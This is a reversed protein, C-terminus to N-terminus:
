ENKFKSSLIFWIREEGGAGTAGEARAVWSGSCGEALSTPSSTMWAPVAAEVRGCGRNEMDIM